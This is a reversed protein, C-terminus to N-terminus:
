IVNPLENSREPNWNTQNKKRVLLSIITCVESNNHPSFIYLINRFVAFTKAIVVMAEVVFVLMSNDINAIDLLSTVLWM